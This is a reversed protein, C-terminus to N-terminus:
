KTKLEYVDYEITEHLYEVDVYGDDTLIEYDDIKWSQTFKKNYKISSSLEKIM